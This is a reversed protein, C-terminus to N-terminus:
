EINGARTLEEEAAHRGIRILGLCLKQAYIGLEDLFLGGHAILDCLLHGLTHARKEAGVHADANRPKCAGVAVSDVLDSRHENRKRGLVPGIHALQVDAIASRAAIDAANRSIVNEIHHAAVELPKLYYFFILIIGGDLRIAAVTQGFLGAVAPSKRCASGLVLTRPYKIKICNEDPEFVVIQRKASPKVEYECGPLYVIDDDDWLALFDDVYAVNELGIGAGRYHMPIITKADLAIAIEKAQQPCITYYGGVPIMLVDLPKLKAATEPDLTHGLDGLHAIRMGEAEVVSCLNDGRLAGLKGDHYTPVQTLSFGPEIGSLEM